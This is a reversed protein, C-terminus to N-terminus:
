ARPKVATDFESKVCITGVDTIDGALMAADHAATEAAKCANVSPFERVQTNTQGNSGLLVMVLHIVTISNM